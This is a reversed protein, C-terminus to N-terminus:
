DHAPLHKIRAKNAKLIGSLQQDSLKSYDIYHRVPDDKASQHTALVNGLTPVLVDTSPPNVPAKGSKQKSKKGKLTPM